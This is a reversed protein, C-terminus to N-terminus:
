ATAGTKFVLTDHSLHDHRSARLRGKRVMRILARYGRAGRGIRSTLDGLTVVGSMTAVVAAAAFDAEADPVRMGYGLRSNALEIPDLDADTLLRVEDVFGTAKAQRAIAALEANVNDTLRAEPKVPYAIRRGDTQEVLFDFYHTRRKGAGDRWDFSVQERLLKTMPHAELCYAWNQELWSEVHLVRGPWEGVMIHGTCHGKSANAPRRDAISPAHLIAFGNEDEFLIKEDDNM